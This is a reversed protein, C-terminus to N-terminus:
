CAEAQAPIDNPFVAGAGRLAKATLRRNFGPLRLEHAPRVVGQSDPGHGRRLWIALSLANEFRLDTDYGLSADLRIDTIQAKDLSHYKALLRALPSDASVPEAQPRPANSQHWETLRRQIEFPANLCDLLGMRVIANGMRLMRAYESHAGKAFEVVGLRNLYHFGAAPMGPNLNALASASEFELYLCAAEFDIGFRPGTNMDTYITGDQAVKDRSSGVLEAEMDRMGNNIAYYDADVFPVTIDPVKIADRKFWDKRDIKPIDYRVGQNYIEDWIATARLTRHYGYRGWYVEIALLEQPGILTFRVQRGHRRADEEERIQITLAFKLLDECHEPSYANPKLTVTLGDKNLSRPMYNRKSPDFHTAGIYNRLDNLSELWPNEPILNEMSKDDQVRLCIHCGFRASCGTGSAKGDAFATIMCEGAAAGRYVEILEDFHSYTEIFDNRVLAIFEFVHDETWDAIPFMQAEGNREVVVDPRENRKIMELKRSTSESWRKGILSVAGHSGGAKKLLRRKLRKLPEVKMNVSCKQDAGPVSAIMQGGIMGVLYNESLEPMASAVVVPLDHHEAWARVKAAEGRYYLDILPNEVRTNSTVVYLPKVPIGDSRCQRLAELSLALVVSSDKGWSCSVILSKGAEIHRRLLSIANAQKEALDTSETYPAGLGFAECPDNIEALEVAEPFMGVQYFLDLNQSAVHPHKM